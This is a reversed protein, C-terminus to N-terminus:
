SAKPKRPRKATPKKAAPKAAAEAVRDALLADIEDGFTVVPLVLRPYPSSATLQTCLARAVGYLVTSATVLFFRDLDEQPPPSPDVLEFQGRLVVRFRYYRWAEAEDNLRVTLRLDGAQDPRAYALPELEVSFADGVDEAPSAEGAPADHGPALDIHLQEAVYTALQLPSAKM